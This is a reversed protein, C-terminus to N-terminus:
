ALEKKWCSFGEVEDDDDEEAAEEVTGFLFWCSM